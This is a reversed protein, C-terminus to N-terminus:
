RPPSDPNGPQTGAGPATGTDAETPNTMSTGSTSSGGSTMGAGADSGGQMMGTTSPGEGTGTMVGDTSGTTTTSDAAM